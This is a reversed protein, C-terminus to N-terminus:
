IGQTEYISFVADFSKITADCRTNAKAYPLGNAHDRQRVIDFEPTYMDVNNISM